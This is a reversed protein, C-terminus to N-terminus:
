KLKDANDDLITKFEFFGKWFMEVMKNYRQTPDKAKNLEQQIRWHRARMRQRRDEDEINAFFEEFIKEAEADPDDTGVIREYITSVNSDGTSVESGNKKVDM